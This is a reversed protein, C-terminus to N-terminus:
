ANSSYRYEYIGIALMLWTCSALYGGLVDSPYHVGLYIRSLGICLILVSFVTLVFRRSAATALHKWLLYTFIGYLTFAAMSHGSPFSYGTVEILRETDPRLRRFMNKLIMNLIASCLVVIAFFMVERRFRLKVYMWIGIAICIVTISLNSGLYTFGKAIVTVSPAEFGRVLEKVSVDFWDAEGAVVLAAVAAFALCSILSITLFRRFRTSTGTRYHNM